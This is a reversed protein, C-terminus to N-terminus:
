GGEGYWWVLPFFGLDGRRAVLYPCEWELLLGLGRLPRDALFRVTGLM